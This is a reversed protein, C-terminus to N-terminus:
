NIKILQVFMLRQSGGPVWQSQWFQMSVPAVLPSTCFSRDSTLDGAWALSMQDNVSIVAIDVHRSQLEDAKEVCPVHCRVQVIECINKDRM